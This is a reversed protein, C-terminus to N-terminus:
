AAGAKPVIKHEVPKEASAKETAQEEPAFAMVIVNAAPIGYPKGAIEVELTYGDYTMKLGPYTKRMPPLEAELQGVGDVVFKMDHLRAKLVKRKMIM